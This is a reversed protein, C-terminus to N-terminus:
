WRKKIERKTKVQGTKNGKEDLVEILEDMYGSWYWNIYVM